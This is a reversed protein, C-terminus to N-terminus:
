KEDGKKEDAKKKMEHKKHVKKHHHHAHHHHKSTKMEHHSEMSHDMTNGPTDTYTEDKGAASANHAVLPAAFFALALTIMTITLLRKM